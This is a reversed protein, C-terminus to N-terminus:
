SNTKLDSKNANVEIKDDIDTGIDRKFYEKDSAIIQKGDDRIKTRRTCKQRAIVYFGFSRNFHRWGRNIKNNKRM